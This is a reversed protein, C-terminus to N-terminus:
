HKAWRQCRRQHPKLPRVFKLRVHDSASPERAPDVYNEMAREFGANLAHAVVPHLLPKHGWADIPNPKEDWGPCSLDHLIRPM